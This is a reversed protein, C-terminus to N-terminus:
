QYLRLSRNEVSLFCHAVGADKYKIDRSDFLGTLCYAAMQVNLYKLAERFRTSLNPMRPARRIEEIGYAVNHMDAFRLIMLYPPFLYRIQEHSTCKYSLDDMVGMLLSADFGTDLAERSISYFESLSEGPAIGHLVEQSSPIFPLAAGSYRVILSPTYGIGEIPPKYGHVKVSVDVRSGSPRVAHRLSDMHHLEDETWMVKRFTDIPLLPACSKIKEVMQAVANRLEVRQIDTIKAM